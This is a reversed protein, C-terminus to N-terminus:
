CTGEQLVALCRKLTLADFDKSLHMQVGGCEITIGKSEADVVETFSARKITTPCIRSKWYYFQSVSIANEQCWRNISLGSERQQEIREQWQRKKEETTVRM